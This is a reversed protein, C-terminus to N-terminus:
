LVISYLNLVIYSIYVICNWTDGWKPSVAKQEALWVLTWALEFANKEAQRRLFPPVARVNVREAAAQHLFSVDRVTPKCINFSTLIHDIYSCKISTPNIIISCKM